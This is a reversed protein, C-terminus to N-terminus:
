SAVDTACINPASVRGNTGLRGFNSTMHRYTFSRVQDPTSPYQILLLSRAVLPLTPVDPAVRQRGLLLVSEVPRLLLSAPSRVVGYRM